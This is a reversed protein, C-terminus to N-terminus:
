GIIQTDYSDSDYYDCLSDEYITNNTQEVYDNMTMGNEIEDLSTNWIPDAEYQQNVPHCWLPQITNTTRNEANNWQYLAPDNWYNMRSEMASVKTELEMIRGLHHIAAKTQNTINTELEAIRKEMRVEIETMPNNNKLVIWYSPDNYVVRAQRSTDLIREQLHRTAPTDYWEKFHIFGQYYIEGYDDKQVVLDVRDVIAIEYLQFVHSISDTNAWEPTIRPIYVSLKNNFQNM